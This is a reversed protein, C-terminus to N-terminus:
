PVTVASLAYGLGDDAFGLVAAVEGDLTLQACLDEDCDVWAWEGEPLLDRGPAALLAFLRLRDLRNM